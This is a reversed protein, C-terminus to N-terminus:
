AHRATAHQVRRGNGNRVHEVLWTQAQKIGQGLQRTTQRKFTRLQLAIRKRTVRGATPAYLLAGVSGIAAGLAVLGLAQAIQFGRRKEKM